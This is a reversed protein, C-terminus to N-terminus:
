NETTKRKRFDRIKRNNKALKRDETITRAERIKSKSRDKLKVWKEKKVCGVNWMNSSVPLREREVALLPALM